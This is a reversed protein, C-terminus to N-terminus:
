IRRTRWISMFLPADGGTINFKVTTSPDLLFWGNTDGAYDIPLKGDKYALYAKQVEKPWLKLVRLRYATDSFADDFYKMNFEVAPNGNLQYRSRCYSIPLEQIFCADKQQVIVGYYAGTRVVKLAIEGFVKKLNCNELYRTSKYWGEVVKKSKGDQKLKEDYIMPTIFWDYKFLFAMYRCLRSYIGSTKFFYNSIKRQENMNNQEIAKLVDEKTYKKRRSYKDTIVQGIDLVVDNSLTKNGVKIKNFALSGSQRNANAIIRCYRENKDKVTAM